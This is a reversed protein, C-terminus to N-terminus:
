QKSACVSPPPLPSFQVVAPLSPANGSTSVLAIYRERTCVISPHRSARLWITTLLWNCVDTSRMLASFASSMYWM